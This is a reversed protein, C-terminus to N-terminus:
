GHPPKENEKAYLQKFDTAHGHTEIVDAASDSFRKIM